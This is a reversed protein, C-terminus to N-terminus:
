GKLEPVGFYPLPRKATLRHFLQMWLYDTGDQVAFIRRYSEERSDGDEDIRVFESDLAPRSTFKRTLHWFLLDDRFDGSVRDQKFKYEWYRPNYGFLSDNAADDLVDFSYFVEKSKVEQEGLNAFEPFAFDYRDERFWMKDVGQMYAPSPVISMIMIVYGHEQCKYRFKNTKGVSIGHGAMDGVPVSTGEATALVQSIQVTQRGGGLYESRQLRYDPVTQGYHALIQENYRGGGRANNELWKQIAMATRFDNITSSSGDIEVAVASDSPHIGSGSSDTLNRAINIATNGSNPVGGAFTEWTADLPDDSWSLTGTGALPMLVAPGRQAFPLAGTFADREWGRRQLFGYGEGGDNIAVFAGSVDGTNAVTSVRIEDDLTPDRFWDNWIKAYAKFPLASFQAQSFNAPTAGEFVPLGFYDWLTGKEFLAQGAAVSPSSLVVQEPTIYPLIVNTTGEQGGTIFDEWKNTVLRMPVFFADTKVTCRHMIPALMPAFRVMATMQDHISDGPMCEQLLVPYLWGFKGSMKVEHSLDFMNRPVKRVPVRTFIQTKSM